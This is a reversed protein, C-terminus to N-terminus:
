EVLKNMVVPRVSVCALYAVMPMPSTMTIIVSIEIGRMSLDPRRVSCKYPRPPINMKEMKMVM